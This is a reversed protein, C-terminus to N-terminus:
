VQESGINKMKQFINRIRGIEKFLVQFDKEFDNITQEMLTVKTRLQDMENKIEQSPMIKELGGCWIVPHLYFM